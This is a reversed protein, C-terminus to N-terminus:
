DTVAWATIVKIEKKEEYAVVEATIKRGDYDRGHARWTIEGGSEEAKSVSCRKLMNQVDPRSISDKEMEILGHPRFFV